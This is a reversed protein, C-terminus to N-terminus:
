NNNKRKLQSNSLMESALDLTQTTIDQGGILNALAHVQDKKTELPNIKTFTENDKQHKSVFFHHDAYAAIQALHTVCLTQHRKGLAHLKKGVIEAIAGSIGTDIEDFILIEITDHSTLITKIALMIRSLEGGSAIKSLSKMEQGPNVSLLFKVDDIGKSSFSEDKDKFSTTVIQTKFRAKKMGLKRLEGVINHDMNKAAQHRQKSLLESLKKLQKKSFNIREIIEQENEFINSLSDLERNLNESLTKLEDSDKLNFKRSIHQIKSLRENLWALRSPNEELKSIYKNLEQHIDESQFLISEVGSLMTKCEPDIKESDILLKRLFELQEIISADKEQLHFNTQNLFESLKEVHTLRNEEIRLDEEEGPKLNLDMLDSIMGKLEDERRSRDAFHSKLKNLEQIADNLTKYSAAVKKRLPILKSYRDLFDLHSSPQLLSQNEHQGHINILQQGIKKLFDLTVSVGNINRKQRGKRSVLCRVILEEYVTIGSEELITKFDFQTNQSNNNPLSFIAEVVASDEGSRIMDPDSRHGLVILIADIMISKGAGTEGTLISFGNKFEVELERITALNEIRLQLLM